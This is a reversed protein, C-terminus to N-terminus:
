SSFGRALRLVESGLCAVVSGLADFGHEQKSKPVKEQFRAIAESGRYRACLEHRVQEKSATKVGCVAVKIEQPSAMVIPVGFHNRVSAIIGWAMAVKAAASSNRPWSMSEVCIAQMPPTANMLFVRFWEALECARRFTDDAALVNQKKSSKSTTTIAMDIVAEGEPQLDVLTVGFTALGPDIGLVCVGM